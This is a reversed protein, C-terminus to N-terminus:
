DREYRRKAELYSRRLGINIAVGYEYRYRRPLKLSYDGYVERRIKKARVARM